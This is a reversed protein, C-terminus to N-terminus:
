LREVPAPPKLPDWIAESPTGCPGSNPGRSNLHVVLSVTSNHSYETRSTVGRRRGGGEQRLTTRLDEGGRVDQDRGPHNTWDRQPSTVERLRLRTLLVVLTHEVDLSFDLADRRDAEVRGADLALVGRHSM